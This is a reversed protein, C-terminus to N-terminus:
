AVSVEAELHVQSTLSNSVLCSREAKDLLKQAKEVDGGEPITLKAKLTVTTFQMKREIAELTGECDCELTLWEFRSAASIARFSLIFCSSIAGMLLTEPSWQDGPGDFEAPAAVALGPLKDASLALNNQPNGSISVHYTHPLAHM